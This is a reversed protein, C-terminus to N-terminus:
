NKRKREDEEEELYKNLTNNKQQEKWSVDKIKIKKM